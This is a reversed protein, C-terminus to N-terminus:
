RPAALWEAGVVDALEREIDDSAVDPSGSRV